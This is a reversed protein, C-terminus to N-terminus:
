KAKEAIKELDEAMSESAIIGRSKLWKNRDVDYVKNDKVAKLSKWVAPDIFKTRNKDTKGDTALIMVKPNINALEENNLYIYPGGKREGVHTTKDKTVE